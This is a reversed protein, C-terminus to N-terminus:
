AEPETLPPLMIPQPMPRVYFGETAREVQDIELRWTYRQGGVLQLPQLPIVFSTDIESGPPIGPPRGVELRGNFVLAQTGAPSPVNVASADADTLQLVFEHPENAENWGVKILVVVAHASPLPGMLSWGAGLMHVKGGMQDQEAFDCLIISARM